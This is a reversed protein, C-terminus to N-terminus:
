YRKWQTSKWWNTRNPLNCRVKKDWCLYIYNLLKHVHPYPAHFIDAPCLLFLSIIVCLRWTSADQMYKPWHWQSLRFSVVRKIQQKTQKKRKLSFRLMSGLEKIKVWIKGLSGGMKKHIPLLVCSLLPTTSCINEYVDTYTYTYPKLLFTGWTKELVNFINLFKM